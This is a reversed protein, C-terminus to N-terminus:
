VARGRPAPRQYDGSTVVVLLKERPLMEQIRRNRRSENRRINRDVGDFHDGGGMLDTPIHVAGDTNMPVHGHMYLNGLDGPTMEDVPQHMDICFNHLRACALVLATQKLLPISMPLAARLIGWRETLMGFACEINIRLQSHFYNYNDRTTTVTNTGSYPTAMFPSNLYANDGFLCLGDKLFNDERLRRYLDMGEFAICDATSGPFQISIDLFRKESDCVAQCNLGFKHKRGCFFKSPDVKAISCQSKSPREIWILIGDVAGACCDFSAMSKAAFGNAIQQQKAHSSPYIIALEALSNIADIVEWVYKYVAAVSLGFLPAVDYVSGGALYRIACAVRVSPTVAGNVLCYQYNVQDLVPQLKWVLCSFVDYTMRYARRFYNDGLIKYVDVVSRRQRHIKPNQKGRTNHSKKGEEHQAYSLLLMNMSLIIAIRRNRSTRESSCVHSMRRRCSKKQLLMKERTMKRLSM